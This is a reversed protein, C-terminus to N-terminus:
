RRIIDRAKRYLNLDFNDLTQLVEGKCEFGDIMPIIRAIVKILQNNNVFVPEDFIIEVKGTGDDLILSNESADLVTGVLKVRVDTEPKIDIIMKEMSPLRRRIKDEVM